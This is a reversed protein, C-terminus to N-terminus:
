RSGRNRKFQGVRKMLLGAFGEIDKLVAGRSGLNLFLKSNVKLCININDAALDKSMRHMKEMFSPTVPPLFEKISDLELIDIEPDVGNNRLTVTDIGNRRILVQGGKVLRLFKFLFLDPDTDSM